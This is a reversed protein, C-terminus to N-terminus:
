RHLYFVSVTSNPNLDDGEKMKRGGEQEEQTEM